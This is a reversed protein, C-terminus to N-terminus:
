NNIKLKLIYYKTNVGDPSNLDLTMLGSTGAENEYLYMKGTSDKNVTLITTLTNTSFPLTSMGGTNTSAATFQMRNVQLNPSYNIIVETEGDNSTTFATINAGEVASAGRLFKDIFLNDVTITIQPEPNSKLDRTVPIISLDALTFNAEFDEDKFNLAAPINKHYNLDLEFESSLSNIMKSLSKSDNIGIECNPLDINDATLIGFCTNDTTLFKIELKKDTVTWKVSNCEDKLTYKNLISVFKNKKM